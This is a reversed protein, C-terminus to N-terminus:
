LLGLGRAAQVAAKRDGASVKRFIARCHSKVTNLSIHLEDAIDRQSMSTPLYQLVASERATLPELIPVPARRGGVGYRAEARALYRGVAGPDPCGGIVSRAEALLALGTPDGGGQLAEGCATLVFALALDTSAHRALALADRAAGLASDGSGSMRARIAYAPAIGPYAALGFATATDIASQAAALARVGPEDDFEAIARYVLALVQATKFGDAAGKDAAFRLTRRAQATQGAWAYAAGAATALESSHNALQGAATLDRAMSLAPAVNGRALWINIRLAGAITADAGEPMSRVMMELWADAESYRGAIYECWGFLLACWPTTRAVGGLRDLYGRLTEVQGEMLLRAGHIRLLGAANDIDGAALRHEIARGHDAGAEFWAAARRHLVPLLDPFARGAELRLLDRLLHHYRFWTGTRDLGIVLQNAAAIRRLWDAGGSDATVADVLPGTLQELTSTELLRRRDDEDLDTLLEDRLYEIVLDDSGLFTALFAAADPARRLSLGALVLGAAWGETRGCLQELLDADLAPGNPALLAAAEVTAFRLDAARIETIQRRVRLRGLRFPPDIRTSLVVTAQEPCLGILREIGSHIIANDILHYDDIVLILPQTLEALWNVLASVVVFADGNAAVIAPRLRAESDGHSVSIADILGRWFVAPDSDREEVQLWAVVESRGGLWSSLLTSKGSGAPASLLVAPIHSAVSLDLIAELRPRRVLGAPPRPPRLKTAALSSGSGM